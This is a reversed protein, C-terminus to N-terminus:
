TVSTIFDNNEPLAAHLLGILSLPSLRYCHLFASVAHPHSGVSTPHLPNVTWRGAPVVVHEADKLGTLLLGDLCYLRKVSATSRLLQPHPLVEQVCAPVEDDQALDGPHLHRIKLPTSVSSSRVFGPADCSSTQYCYSLWVHLITNRKCSSYLIHAWWTPARSFSFLLWVCLQKFHLFCGVFM